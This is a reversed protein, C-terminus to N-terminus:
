ALTAASHRNSNFQETVGALVEVCGTSGVLLTILLSSSVQSKEVPSVHGRAGTLETQKVAPNLFVLFSWGSLTKRERM